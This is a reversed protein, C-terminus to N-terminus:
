KKSLNGVEIDYREDFKQKWYESKKVYEVMRVHCYHRDLNRPICHHSMWEDLLLVIYDPCKRYGCLWNQLTRYPINLGKSVDERTVDWYEFLDKITITM